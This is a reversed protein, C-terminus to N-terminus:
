FRGCAKGGKGALVGKIGPDTKLKHLINSYIPDPTNRAFTIDVFGNPSVRYSTFEEADENFLIEAVAGSAISEEDQAIALPVFLVTSQLFTITFIFLRCAKSM